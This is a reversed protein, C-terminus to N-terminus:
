FFANIFGASIWTHPMDGIYAGQDAPVYVAEPWQHWGYPHQHELLMEVVAAAEDQMGLASLAPALRIEYPSFSGTWGPERRREVEAYYRRLSFLLAERPLHDMEDCLVVAGALSSADFDGLEACGPIYRINYFAMTNSISAYVADRLEAEERRMWPLDNTRGTAGALEMADKWGKLAWFNDWYSHNGPEPYYGEHSVSKPLIGYYRRQDEHALYFDQVESDRLTELYKLVRLINTWQRDLLADDGTYRYYQRIVSIFEGQSDYEKVPNVENRNHIVIAPVRGDDFIYRSYWAIYDRVENTFGCRLLALATVAGDRMWSAEYSRSGPQIAPGDRNILIYALNARITTRIKKPTDEKRSLSTIRNSVAEDNLLADLGALRATWHDMCVQRARRIDKEPVSEPYLPLAISFSRGKGPPLAFPYAIVGSAQGDSRHINRREPIKGRALSHVIDTDEVSTVGFAMPRSLPYIKYENASIVTNSDMGLHDIRTFGGWQWPPNVEFPRIALYLRGSVPQASHNRIRYNVYTTSRDEPGWCFADIDMRVDPAKWSVRPLPLYGRALEQTLEVDERTLFRGNVELFPTISFSKYPEVTGDQCFLSEKWDNEVGVVTWYGQQGTLWYPYYGRPALQASLKYYAAADKQRFAQMSQAFARPSKAVLVRGTMGGEVGRDMVRLVLTNEAGCVLFPAIPVSVPADKANGTHAKKGNVFLTWSNGTDLVRMFVPANSWALPIFVDKRFRAAGQHDAGQQEERPWDKLVFFDAPQYRGWPEDETKLDIEFLSYGFQTGRNRCFVRLYRASVPSFSIDDIGGDGSTTSFVTRWDAGNTSVQIDYAYAYAYEWHLLLGTLRVTRGLDLMIWQPDSFDSSWRTGFHEDVAAKAPFAEGASSATADIEVAGGSTVPLLVLSWLLRIIRLDHM